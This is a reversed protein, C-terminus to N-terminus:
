VDSEIVRVYRWTRKIGLKLRSGDKKRHLSNYRSIRRRFRESLHLLSNAYITAAIGFDCDSVHGVCARLSMEVPSLMTLRNVVACDVMAIRRRIAGAMIVSASITARVAGAPPAAAFCARGAGGVASAAGRSAPSGIMAITDIM